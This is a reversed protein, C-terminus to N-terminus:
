QQFQNEVANPGARERAHDLTLFDLIYFLVILGFYESM